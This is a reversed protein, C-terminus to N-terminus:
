DANLDMCTLIPMILEDYLFIAQNFRGDVFISYDDVFDGRLYGLGVVCFHFNLQFVVTLVRSQM